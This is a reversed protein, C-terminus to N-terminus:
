KVVAVHGNTVVVGRYNKSVRQGNLNYRPAQTDDDLPLTTDAMGTSNASCIIVQQNTPESEDPLFIGCGYDDSTRIEAKSPEYIKIGSGLMIDGLHCISGETGQTALAGNGYIILKGNRASTYPEATGGVVGNKGTASVVTSEAINLVSNPGISIASDDMTNINLFGSGVLTTTLTMPHNMIGGAGTDIGPANCTSISNEGQLYITVNDNTVNRFGSVDDADIVANNLTIELGRWNTNTVSKPGSKIYPSGVGFQNASTLQVGAVYVNYKQADKFGVDKGSVLVGGNQMVQRTEKDWYCGPLTSSDFDVEELALQPTFIAGQEGKFRFLATEDDDSDGQLYLYANDNTDGIRPAEFGYTKGTVVFNNMGRLIMGGNSLCRLAAGETSTLYMYTNNYEFLYERAKDFCFCAGRTTIQNTGKAWISRMRNDQAPIQVIFDGDYTANNVRVNDLNLNARYMDESYYIKGGTMGDVVIDTYNASNVERGFLKWVPDSWTPVHLAITPALNGTNGAFFGKQTNFAFGAGDCQTLACSKFQAIPGCTVESRAFSLAENGSGMIAFTYPTSVNLTLDEVNLAGTTLIGYTPSTITLALSNQDYKDKGNGKLTFPKGSIIGAWPSPAGLSYGAYVTNAGKAVINLRDIGKNEIFHSSLYNVNVNDLLLTKSNNKYIIKGSTLPVDLEIDRTEQEGTPVIEGMVYLGAYTQLTHAYKGQSDRLERNAYYVGDPIVLDDAFEVTEFGSIASFYQDEEEISLNLQASGIRLTAGLSNIIPAHHHKATLKLHYIDLDTTKGSAYIAAGYHTNNSEVSVTATKVGDSGMYTSGTFYICDTGKSTLKNTGEFTISLGDIKSDICNYEATLVVNDFCLLNALAYFKITGATLGEPRIDMANDSTVQTGAIRLDYKTPEAACLNMGAAILLCSILLKKTMMTM